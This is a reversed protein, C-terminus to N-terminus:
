DSQIIVQAIDEDKNVDYHLENIVHVSEFNHDVFIQVMTNDHFVLIIGYFILLYIYLWYITLTINFRVHSMFEIFNSMPEEQLEYEQVCKGIKADHVVVIDLEYAFHFRIM